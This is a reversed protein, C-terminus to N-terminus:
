RLRFEAILSPREALLRELHSESWMEIRLARDENNSKEIMLVADSSFRGSTAIVLVDVRPPEWLKMQEKLETVDAIAISRALWHRCQIIVRSRTIGGLQDDIIRTVSLDRGRDPANTKMLWAPNEYGRARSILAFVLREFDEASLAEWKLRTAVVGKPQSAALMGLDIAEVPVPEHQDYIGASLSAKVEPWDHNLIDLLDRVLGFHLHRRLDGWRAPRPLSSGLMTEIEQIHQRLEEFAPDALKLAVEAEDPHREKLTRLIEDVGAIVESLADRVLQRRKKNLRHRYNALERAPADVAEEADVIM